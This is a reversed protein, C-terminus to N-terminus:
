GPDPAQRPGMAQETDSVDNAEGVPERRYPIEIEVRLGGHASEALQFRHDEPYLQALRARTNRLGIGTGGNTSGELSLGPGDDEVALTLRGDARRAQVCVSGCEAAPEVGHRIANEVLPQMLFPPVLAYAAAEEVEWEVALRDGFRIEEIEVYRRLIDLEAELPQEQVGESELTARLLESLRALVRRAARVDDDMLSAAAHLTNFLFHPQLQMKLARLQTRALEARARSAEVEGDRYRRYNSMAHEVGVIAWYILFAVNFRARFFAWFVDSTSVDVRYGGVRWSWQMWAFVYLLGCAAAALVHVPVHLGLSGRELTYRRAVFLVLPTLLIWVLYAPLQQSLLAGWQPEDGLSRSAIYSQSAALLSILTWVGVIVASTKLRRSLRGSGGGARHQLGDDQEAM